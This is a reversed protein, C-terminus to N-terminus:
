IIGEKNRFKWRWAAFTNLMSHSLMPAVLGWGATIMYTLVIASIFPFVWAFARVGKPHGMIHAPLAHVAAFAAAQLISAAPGGIARALAGQLIWRFALEELAAGPICFLVAACVAERDNLRMLALAAGGPRVNRLDAERDMGMLGSLARGLLFLGGLCISAEIAQAIGPLALAADLAPDAGEPKLLFLIALLLIDGLDIAAGDRNSLRVALKFACLAAILWRM